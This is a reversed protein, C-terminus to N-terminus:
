DALGANWMRIVEDLYKHEVYHMHECEIVYYPIEEDNEADFCSRIDTSNCIPCPIVKEESFPVEVTAKLKAM